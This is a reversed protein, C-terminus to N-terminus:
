ELILKKYKLANWVTTFSNAIKIQLTYRTGCNRVQHPLSPDLIWATGPQSRYSGTVSQGASDYALTEAASDTSSIIYNLNTFELDKEHPNKSDVHKELNAYIAVFNVSHVHLGDFVGYLKDRWPLLSLLMKGSWSYWENKYTIDNQILSGYDGYDIQFYPVLGSGQVLRWDTPKARTYLTDYVKIVKTWDFKIALDIPKIM